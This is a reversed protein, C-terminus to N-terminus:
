CKAWLPKFWLTLKKPYTMPHIKLYKEGNRKTEQITGEPIQIQAPYTNSLKEVKDLISCISKKMRPRIKKIYQIVPKYLAEMARGSQAHIAMRDPDIMVTKLSYQLMQFMRQHFTEAVQLGTLSGELFQLAAKDAPKGTALVNMGKAKTEERSGQQIDAFDDSNLGYATLMPFLNYFVASDEKSLRYNMNDIMPLSSEIYSKGDPVGNSLFFSTTLWEGQVFGLNHEM